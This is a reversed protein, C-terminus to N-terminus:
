VPNTGTDTRLVVLLVQSGTPSQVALGCGRFGKLGAWKGGMKYDM